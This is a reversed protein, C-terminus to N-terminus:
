VGSTEKGDLRGSVGHHGLERGLGNHNILAAIEGHYVPSGSLVGSFEMLPDGLHVGSSDLKLERITDEHKGGRKKLVSIAKRVRGAHEFYRLLLVTDALYSLEIPSASVAGVLGYQAVVMITVVGKSALYTLLEHMQILLFKEGPMANLYGNLSDILVVRAGAEEVSRRVLDVFQGPTLSAPDIQHLILRGDAICRDMSMGLGRSRALLTHMREDFVFAAAREGRGCASMVYQSAVSSKGTGAAGMLLVSSGRDPGGGLLGDLEGVGSPLKEKGDFSPAEPQTPGPPVRPFVQLGGRRIQFDHYGGDFDVGRLKIVHLRRRERGYEPAERELLIVGHALTQFQHDGVKSAPDDLVLITCNRKVLFEKLALMQRRYRFPDRALLRMESLSDIAVRTPSVRELESILTQVTQSLEIESPHFTTYEQEGGLTDESPQMEFIHIGDLRWGHSAAVTVLEERTESLAVYMGREGKAVGDLLFQMALTTKGTGPDGQILYLRNAPLGGGIISDLGAVGTPLRRVQGSAQVTAQTMRM